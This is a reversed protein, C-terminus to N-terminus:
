IKKLGANYYEVLLANRSGIFDLFIHNSGGRKQAQSWSHLCLQMPPTGWWGVRARTGSWGWGGRIGM